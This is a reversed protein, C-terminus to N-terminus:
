LGARLPSFGPHRERIYEVTRKEAELRPTGHQMQMNMFLLFMGQTKNGNAKRYHERLEAGVRRQRATAIEPLRKGVKRTRPPDQGGRSLDHQAIVMSRENFEDLLLQKQNEPVYGTEVLWEVASTYMGRRWAEFHPGHQTELQEANERERRKGCGACKYRASLQGVEDRHRGCIKCYLADHGRWPM